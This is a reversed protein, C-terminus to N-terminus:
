TSTHHGHTYCTCTSYTGATHLVHLTRTARTYLRHKGACLSPVAAPAPVGAYPRGPARRGCSSSRPCSSSPQRPGCGGQLVLDTVAVKEPASNKLPPPTLDLDAPIKMYQCAFFFRQPNLGGLGGGPDAM